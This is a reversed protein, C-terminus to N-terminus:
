CSSAVVRRRENDKQRKCSTSLRAQKASSKHSMDFADWERWLFIFFGGFLEIINIKLTLACRRPSINIINKKQRIAILHEGLIGNVIFLFLRHHRLFEEGGSQIYITRNPFKWHQKLPEVAGSMSMSNLFCQENGVFSKERRPGFDDDDDRFVWFAKALNITDFPRSLFLLMSFM